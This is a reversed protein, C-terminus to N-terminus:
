QIKTGGRSVGVQGPREILTGSALDQKIRQLRQAVSTLLKRYQEDSFSSRHGLETAFWVITNLSHIDAYVQELQERLNVPLKQASYRHADWVDTQLSLLNDGSFETAIRLNREFEALLEPIPFKAPELVEAPARPTNILQRALDSSTSVKPKKGFLLYFIDLLTVRDKHIFRMILYNCSVGIFVGAFITVVLILAMRWWGLATVLLLVEQWWEM